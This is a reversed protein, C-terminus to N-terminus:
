DILHMNPATVVWEPHVKAIAQAALERDMYHRSHLARFIDPFLRRERAWLDPPACFHYSIKAGKPHLPMDRKGSKRSENLRHFRNSALIHDDHTLTEVVVRGDRVEVSVDRMPERRSIKM